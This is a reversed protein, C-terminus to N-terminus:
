KENRRNEDETFSKAPGDYDRLRASAHLTLGTILKRSAFPTMSDAGKTKEPM